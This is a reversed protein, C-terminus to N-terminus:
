IIHNVVEIVFSKVVAPRPLFIHAVEEVTFEQCLKARIVFNLFDISIKKIDM